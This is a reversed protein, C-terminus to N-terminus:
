WRGLPEQGPGHFRARLTLLILRGASRVMAIEHTVSAPFFAVWGPEPRWSYHGPKFPIRMANNSPDSFMTTLRSEYLRLMGSDQRSPSPAPAEVCYVGCWSTLPYSQAPVSGDPQVITFAMRTQVALSKRFEETFDNLSGVVTWLGRLLEAAIKQISEDPWDLLNDASRYCLPDASRGPVGPERGASGARAALANAAIGNLRQAEPLELIALPTAFIPIIPPAPSEM